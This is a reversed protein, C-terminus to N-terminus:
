LAQRVGRRANFIDEIENTEQKQVEVMHEQLRKEKLNTVVKRSRTAQHLKQMMESRQQEVKRKLEQVEAHQRKLDAVQSSLGLRDMASFRRGSEGNWSAYAKEESAELQQLQQSVQEVQANAEALSSKANQEELERLSLLSELSFVFKKM